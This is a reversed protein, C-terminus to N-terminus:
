SKKFFTKNDIRRLTAFDKDNRLMEQFDSEDWKDWPASIFKGTIGNSEDSLLFATLDAAKEPPVGGSEIQKKTNEYFSNGSKNPGVELTQDHLRTLVFGPAVCNIDFNDEALELSLNETFRVIAIKSTAYASYNAFPSAAGGGSYNVIKKRSESKILPAFVSCMYVTGLFNIQLTESFKNLDIDTTKGIPGYIGACNVLGDILINKNNCWEAFKIIRNLDGVNMPYILHNRSSIKEMEEVTRKLDVENRAVIIVRAGEEVCKKTVAFGIGLSGGTIIITKSELIAMM